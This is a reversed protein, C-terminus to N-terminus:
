SVDHALDLGPLVVPVEVPEAESMWWARVAAGDLAHRDGPLVIVSLGEVTAMARDAATPCAPGVPHSHYVALVDEGEDWRVLGCVREVEDPAIEFRTPSAAANEAYLVRTATDGRGALIGCCEAPLALAAHELLLDRLQRPLVLRKM